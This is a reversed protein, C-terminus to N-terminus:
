WSSSIATKAIKLFCLISNTPKGVPVSDNWEKLEGQMAVGILTGFISENVTVLNKLAEKLNEKYHEAQM